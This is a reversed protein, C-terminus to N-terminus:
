GSVFPMELNLIEAKNYALLRNKQQESFPFSCHIYVNPKLMVERM